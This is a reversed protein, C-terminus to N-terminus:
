FLPYIGQERAKKVDIIRLAKSNSRLYYNFEENGKNVATEFTTKISLANISERVSEMPSRGVLTTEIFLTERSNPALRVGVFAHGPVLVILPELGINEFLSAFLVTGDICNAAQETISENPLRVRQAFGVKGFSIPSNVYSIGATRVANFIAKVQQTVDANNIYGSLSRNYVRVKARSLIGEVLYDKPTVWAAILSETDYPYKLSWIMDDAARIRINRTEEFVNKDGLKARLLITTPIISRNGLLKKGFPTQIVEKTENPAVKVITIAPETWESIESFVSIIITDKNENKINWRVLGAISSNKNGESIFKAIVPFIEQQVDASIITKFQDSSQAVSYSFLLLSLLVINIVLNKM